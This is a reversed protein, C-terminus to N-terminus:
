ARPRPQRAQIASIPGGKTVTTTRPMDKLLDLLTSDQTAKAAEATTETIKVRAREIVKKGSDSLLYAEAAQAMAKKGVDKQRIKQARMMQKVINLADKRALAMVSREGGAVKEDKKSAIRVTGEKISQINKVVIAEAAAQAAELAEGELGKNAVKTLGRSAMQVLGIRLAETYVELPIEQTNIDFSKGAKAVYLELVDQNDAMMYSRQKITLRIRCEIEVVIDLAADLGSNRLNAKESLVTNLWAGRGGNLKALEIM